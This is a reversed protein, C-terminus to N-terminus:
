EFMDGVTRESGRRISIRGVSSKRRDEVMQLQQRRRKAGPCSICCAYLAFVIVAVMLLKDLVSLFLHLYYSLLEVITEETLINSSDKKEEHPFDIKM